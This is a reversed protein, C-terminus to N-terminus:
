RWTSLSGAPNPGSNRQRLPTLAESMAASLGTVDALDVLM